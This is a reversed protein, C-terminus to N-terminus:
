LIPEQVTLVFDLDKRYIGTVQIFLVFAFFILFLLGIPELQLYTYAVYITMEAPNDIYTINPGDAGIPWEIYLKYSIMSSNHLHKPLM